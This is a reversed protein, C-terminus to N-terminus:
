GGWSAERAATLITAGAAAQAILSDVESRARANYALEIAAQGFLDPDPQMDAALQERQILRFFVGLTVVRIRQEVM